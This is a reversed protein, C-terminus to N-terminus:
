FVQVNYIYWFQTDIFQVHKQPLRLAVWLSLSFGEGKGWACNKCTYVEKIYIFLYHVPSGSRSVVMFDVIIIVIM